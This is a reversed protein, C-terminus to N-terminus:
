NGRFLDRISRGLGRFADGIKKGASRFWEGANRPWGLKSLTGTLGYEDPHFSAGEDWAAWRIRFAIGAAVCAVLAWRVLRVRTRPSLSM